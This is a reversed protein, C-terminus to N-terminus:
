MASGLSVTMITSSSKLRMSMSMVVSSLAVCVTLISLMFYKLTCWTGCSMGGTGVYVVKLHMVDEFVVHGNARNKYSM